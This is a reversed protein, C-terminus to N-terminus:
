GGRIQQRQELDDFIKARKQESAQAPRRHIGHEDDPANPMKRLFRDDGHATDISVGDTLIHLQNDSRCRWRRHNLPPGVPDGEDGIRDAPGFSGSSRRVSFILADSPLAPESFSSWVGPASTEGGLAPRNAPKKGNMATKSHIPGAISTNM